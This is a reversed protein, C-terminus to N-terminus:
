RGVYVTALFVLAWAVSLWLLVRDRLILEEPAEGAGGALLEAYRGLWLVFPVLSLEYLVHEQGRTFAWGAYAVTAATASIAILLRLSRISYRRLTERSPTGNGNHSLEAYRKGAVLFIAGCSTVLLFWHSLGLNTAAGGAAARMVFGAAIALIDAFVVRRWWLSYSGTLMLYALGVAALAPRVIAALSLGALAMAAGASVAVKTSLEGAAVPRSRKTPHHRDQKYDRVDNILYTASALLCFVVFAALVELAIAPRAAVGAAAPAALVLLNKSWQRPRCARLLAQASFRPKVPARDLWRLEGGRLQDPVEEVSAIAPVPNITVERVPLTQPARPAVGAVPRSRRTNWM